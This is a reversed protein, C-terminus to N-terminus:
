YCDMPDVGPDSEPLGMAILEALTVRKFRRRSEVAHTILYTIYARQVERASSRILDIKTGYQKSIAFLAETELTDSFEVSDENPLLRLSPLQNYGSLLEDVVWSNKNDSNEGLNFIERLLLIRKKLYDRDHNSTPNFYEHIAEVLAHIDLFKTPEENEYDAEELSENM